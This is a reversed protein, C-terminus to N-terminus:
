RELLTSAKVIREILPQNSDSLIRRFLKADKTASAASLIPLMLKGEVVRINRDM